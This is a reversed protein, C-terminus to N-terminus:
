MLKSSSAFCSCRAAASPRGAARDRRAADRGRRAEDDVGARGPATAPRACARKLVPRSTPRASCASRSSPWRRTSTTRRRRRARGRRGCWGAAAVGRHRPREGIARPSGAAASRHRSASASRAAAPRLRRRRHRDHLRPQRGSPSARRTVVMLAKAGAAARRRCCSRTSRRDTAILQDPALFVPTAGRAIVEAALQDQCIQRVTSSTPTAPSWCARAACSARLPPRIAGSRKSSRARPAAQSFRSRRQRRPACGGRPQAAVQPELHEDHTEVALRALRGRRREAAHRRIPLQMAQTRDHRCSGVVGASPHECLSVRPCPILLAESSLRKAGGSACTSSTACVPAPVSAPRPVRKRAIRISAKSAPRANPTRAQSVGNLTKLGFPPM